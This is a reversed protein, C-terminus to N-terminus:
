PVKPPTVDPGQKNDCKESSVNIRVVSSDHDEIVSRFCIRDTVSFAIAVSRSMGTIIVAKSLCFFFPNKNAEM